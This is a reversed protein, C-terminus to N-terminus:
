RSYSGSSSTSPKSMNSHHFTFLWQNRIVVWIASTMSTIDTMVIAESNAKLIPPCKNSGKLIEKVGLPTSDRIHTSSQIQFLITGNSIVSSGCSRFVNSVLITKKSQRTALNSQQNNIKERNHQLAKHDKIWQIIEKQYKAHPFNKGARAKVNGLLMRDVYFTFKDM